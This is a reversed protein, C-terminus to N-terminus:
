SFFRCYGGINRGFEAQKISLLGMDQFWNFRYLRSKLWLWPRSEFYSIQLKSVFQVRLFPSRSDRAASTENRVPEDPCMLPGDLYYKRHWVYSWSRCLDEFNSFFYWSANKGADLIWVPASRISFGGMKKSLEVSNLPNRASWFKLVTFRNLKDSQSKSCSWIGPKFYSMRFKSVYRNQLYTTNSGNAPTTGIEVPEDPCTLPGSGGEFWRKQAM